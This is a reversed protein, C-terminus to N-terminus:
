HNRQKHKRTLCSLAALLMFHKMKKWTNGKTTKWPVSMFCVEMNKTTKLNFYIFCCNIWSKNLFTEESSSCTPNIQFVFTEPFTLNNVLYIVDTQKLLNIVLELLFIRKMQLTGKKKSTSYNMENIRYLKNMFNLGFM